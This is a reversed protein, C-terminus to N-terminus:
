QPRNTSQRIVEVREGLSDTVSVVGTNPNVNVNCSNPCRYTIGGVTVLQEALAPAASMLGAFVLCVPLFRRM